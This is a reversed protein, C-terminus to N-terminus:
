VDRVAFSSNSWFSKPNLIGYAQRVGGHSDQLYELGPAANLEIIAPGDKTYAIDWGGYGITEFRSAAEEALERVKNWYPFVQGKFSFGTDPHKETTKGHGQHILDHFAGTEPDIKCVLGTQSANDLQSGGQGMRLMGFLVKAKGDRFETMVRFTNVANPYVKNLEEHQELGEQLIYDENADLTSKVFSSHLLNGHEDAYGVDTRTFVMIGNGGLGKTPKLFLKRAQNASTLQDASKSEIEKKSPDYFAGNKYQWVLVPQPLGYAKLLQSTLEKDESLVGYDKYHKPFFLYYAFYNPIYDKMEDLTLECTKRYFGYRIYQFPYCGWYKHLVSMEKRIQSQPKKNTASNFEELEKRYHVKYHNRLKREALWKWAQYIKGKM